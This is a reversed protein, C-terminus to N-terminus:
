RMVYRLVADERKAQREREKEDTCDKWFTLVSDAAGTIIEAEDSSM